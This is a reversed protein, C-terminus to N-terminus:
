ESGQSFKLLTGTPCVFRCYPRPVFVSLVLVVAAFVVVVWSAATFLFATFLEYDMWGSWVGTLALATLVGWLIRRLM